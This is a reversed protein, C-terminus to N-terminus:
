GAWREQDALSQLSQQLKAAEQELDSFIRAAGELSKKVGMQELSAALAAVGTGSLQLASGKLKHSLKQVDEFSGRQIATGIKGLLLPREQNFTRVLDHLLEVDGNLRDWLAVPDFGATKLGEFRPHQEPMEFVCTEPESLGLVLSENFSVGRVGFKRM